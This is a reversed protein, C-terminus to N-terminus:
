FGVFTTVCRPPLVTKGTTDGVPKLNEGDADSTRYLRWQHRKRDSVSLDFEQENNSYNIAVVVWQGDTNLYATAMIGYPDEEGRMEYRVAGPRVFLSYNGFAWLRKLPVISIQDRGDKAAHILGDHYGGPSVGVWCSWSVANLVTLDEALTRALVLASDMGFDSGNVMECWESM